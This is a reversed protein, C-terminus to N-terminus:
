TGAHDALQPELQHAALLQEEWTVLTEMPWGKRTGVLLPEPAEGEKVMRYWTSRTVDYRQACESASLTRSNDMLSEKASTIEAHCIQVNWEVDVKSSLKGNIYRKGSATPL